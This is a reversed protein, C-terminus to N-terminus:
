EDRTLGQELNSILDALFDIKDFLRCSDINIYNENHILDYKIFDRVTSIKTIDYRDKKENYFSKM